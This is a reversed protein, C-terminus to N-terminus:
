HLTELTLINGIFDGKAYAGYLLHGMMCIFILIAAIFGAQGIQEALVTLKIQLPTDDQEKTLTKKLIGYQSHEGVALVLMKGTGDLIKSSSILFPNVM